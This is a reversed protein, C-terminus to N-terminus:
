CPTLSRATLPRCMLRFTLSCGVSCCCGEQAMPVHAAITSIVFADLLYRREGKSRTKRREKGTIGRGYPGSPVTM